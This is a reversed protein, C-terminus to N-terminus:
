GVRRRLFAEHVDVGALDEEVVGMAAFRSGSATARRAPATEAAPAAAQEAVEARVVDLAEAADLAEDLEIRRIPVAPATPALRREVDTQPVEGTVIEEFSPELPSVRALPGSIARRDEALRRRARQLLEDGPQAALAQAGAQAATAQAAVARQEAAPRRVARARQEPVQAPSWSRSRLLEDTRQVRAVVQEAVRAEAAVAEAAVERAEVLTRVSPATAAAVSRVRAASANVAVLGVLGLVLAAGGALLLMGLGPLLAGAVVAAVALLVLAFCALRTRRLRQARSVTTRVAARVEREVAKIQEDLERARAVAKAHEMAQKLRAEKAVARQQVAITRADAEIRVEEPSEASEAMIRLTQQLRIANRETALYERRRTWVPVLYAVWLLVAVILVLSTGLGALEPM